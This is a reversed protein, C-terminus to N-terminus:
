FYRLEDVLVDRHVLQPPNQAQALGFDAGLEGVLGFLELPDLDSKCLKLLFRHSGIFHDDFPKFRQTYDSQALIQRANVLDTIRTAPHVWLQM